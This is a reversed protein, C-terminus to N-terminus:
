FDEKDGFSIDGDGSSTIVDSNVLTLIDLEPKSYIKM